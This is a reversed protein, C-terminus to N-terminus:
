LPECYPEIPGAIYDCGGTRVAFSRLFLIMIDRLACELLSSHLRPGAVKSETELFGEQQTEPLNAFSSSASIGLLSTACLAVCLRKIFNMKGKPFSHRSAVERRIPMDGPPLHGTPGWVWCSEVGGSAVAAPM